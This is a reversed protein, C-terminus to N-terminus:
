DGWRNKKHYNKYVEANRDALPGYRKTLGDRGDIAETKGLLTENKEEEQRAKLEEPMERQWKADEKDARVLLKFDYAYVTVFWLHCAVSMWQTQGGLDLEWFPLNPPAMGPRYRMGFCSGVQIFIGIWRARRSWKRVALVPDMSDEYAVLCCFQHFAHAAGFYFSGYYHYQTDSSPATKGRRMVEWLDEQVTYFAAVLFGILAVAAGCTSTVQFIQRHRIHPCVIKVFGCFTVTYFVGALSLGYSYVSAEPDKASIFEVVPYTLGEPLHGNASALYWCYGLTFVTCASGLLPSVIFMWDQLTNELEKADRKASEPTPM